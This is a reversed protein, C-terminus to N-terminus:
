TNLLIESMICGISWMDVKLDYVTNGLIIEPPRYWRSCIHGSKPRRKKDLSEITRAFGLDCITIKCESNILINAPKIDRHTINASHLYKICCLINYSIIKFHEKETMLFDSDNQGLFSNLDSPQYEM